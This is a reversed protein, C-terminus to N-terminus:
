SLSIIKIMNKGVEASDGKSKGKISEFVPAQESFSIVEKDEFKFVPVAVGIFLYNINTEVLAGKEISDHQLDLEKNLFEIQFLAERLMQEYRLQMDKAQTQQSFDDPDHTSEEDLDSAIKYRDVSQQLSAVVANQEEIIRSIIEKRKM